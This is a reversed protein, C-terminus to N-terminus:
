FSLTKSFRRPFKKIKKLSDIFKEWSFLQNDLTTYKSKLYNRVPMLISFIFYLPNESYSVTGFFQTLFHKLARRYRITIELESQLKFNTLVLFDQFLFARSIFIPWCQLQDPLLTTHSYITPAPLIKGLFWLVFYVRMSGCNSSSM